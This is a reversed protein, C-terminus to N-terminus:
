WRRTGSSRWRRSIVAELRSRGEVGQRTEPPKAIRHPTCRRSRRLLAGGPVDCRSRPCPRASGLCTAIFSPRSSAEGGARPGESESRALFSLPFRARMWLRELRGAGVEHLGFGGLEHFGIRGALTESGRRVLDFSASGLLLFRAPHRPRDALVRLTAFLEPRHHVEDLIVLGGFAQLALMPDALRALDGPDELDLLTTPGKRNKADFRSTTLPGRFTPPRCVM